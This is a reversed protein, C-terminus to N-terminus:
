LTGMEHLERKALVYAEHAQQPTDYTGLCKTKGFIRIQAGFRKKNPVVGLFGTANNSRASKQNQMNQSRSAPRLNAWRNDTRIGNIHDVDYKPWEGTMYFVALRHALYNHKKIGIHVYGCIHPTGAVGGKRAKGRTELWIFRGTEEEYLLVSKLEDLAIM